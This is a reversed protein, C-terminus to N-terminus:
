CREMLPKMRLETAIALSEDLLPRYNPRRCFALADAFHAAADDAWGMTDALLDLMRNVSALFNYTGASTKLSPYQKAAAVADTKIAAALAAEIRAWTSFYPTAFPSSLVVKISGEGAIPHKVPDPISKIIPSIMALYSHATNPRRDSQCVVGELRELYFDVQEKDGANTELTIRQSLLRADLPALDLRRQSAERTTQWGGHRTHLGALVQHTSTLWYRDQLRQAPEMIAWAQHSSEESDGLAFSNSGAWYRSDVETRLDSAAVASDIAMISSKM